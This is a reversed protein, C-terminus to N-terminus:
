RGPDTPDEDAFGNHDDRAKQLNNIEDQVWMAHETLAEARLTPDTPLPSLGQFDIPKWRGGPGILGQVEGGGAGGYAYGQDLVADAFDRVDRFTQGNIRGAAQASEAAAAAYGPDGPEIGPHAFAGEVPEM